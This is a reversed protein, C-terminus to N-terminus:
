LAAFLRGVGTSRSLAQFLHIPGLLHSVADIWRWAENHCDPRISPKALANLMRLVMPRSSIGALIEIQDLWVTSWSLGLM